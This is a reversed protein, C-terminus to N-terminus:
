EKLAKYLDTDIIEAFEIENESYNIGTFVNSGDEKIGYIKSDTISKVIRSRDVKTTSEFWDIFDDIPVIVGYINYRKVYVRDGPKFKM